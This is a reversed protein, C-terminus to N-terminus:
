WGEGEWDVFPCTLVVVAVMCLTCLVLFISFGFGSWGGPKKRM